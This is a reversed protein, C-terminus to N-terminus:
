YTRRGDAASQKTVAQSAKYARHRLESLTAARDKSDTTSQLEVSPLEDDDTLPVLHFIITNRDDGNKDAGRREEWSTQIDRDTLATNKLLLKSDPVAKLIAGWLAILEPQIKAMANFCGFTIYGNSNSPPPNVEGAEQPAAFCLFGDPLRLLEESHWSRVLM